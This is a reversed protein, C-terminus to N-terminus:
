RGEHEAAPAAAQDVLRHVLRGALTTIRPEPGSEAQGLSSQLPRSPRARDSILALGALAAGAARDDDRDLAEDLAGLAATVQSWEAPTLRWSRISALLPQAHRISLPM